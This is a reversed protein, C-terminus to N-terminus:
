KVTELYDTLEIFEAFDPDMGYQGAEHRKLVEVREWQNIQSSMFKRKSESTGALIQEKSMPRISNERSGRWVNNLVRLLEPHVTDRAVVQAIPYAAELWEEGGYLLSYGAMMATLQQSIRQLGEPATPTGNLHTSRVMTVVNALYSIREKLAYVEKPCPRNKCESVLAATRQRVEKWLVEKQEATVNLYAAAAKQRAKIGYAVPMRILISREGLQQSELIWEDLAPTCGFLFGFRDKYVVVGTKGTSNSYKGDFASRLGGFLEKASEKGKSILKTLEHTIMVKGGQLRALLSPDFDPNKEDRYGSALGKASIDNITETQQCLDFAQLTASKGTSPAAVIGTWPPEIAGRLFISVYASFLADVVRLDNGEWGMLTTFLKKIEDM